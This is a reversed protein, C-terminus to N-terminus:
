GCLYNVAEKIKGIFGDFVGHSEAELEAIGKKAQTCIAEKAASKEIVPGPKDKRPKQNYGKIQMHVLAEFLMEKPLPKINADSFPIEYYIKRGREVLYPQRKGNEFEIELEVYDRKQFQKISEKGPVHRIAKVEDLRVRVVDASPATEAAVPMSYFPINEYLGAITINEASEENVTGYFNIAPEHESKETSQFGTNLLCFLIVPLLVLTFKKEM